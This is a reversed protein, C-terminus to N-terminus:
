LTIARGFGRGVFSSMQYIVINLPDGSTYGADVTQETDTFSVGVSPDTANKTVAELGTTKDLLVVEYIGTTSVIAAAISAFGYTGEAVPVDSIGDRFDANQDGRTRRDWTFTATRAGAGSPNDVKVRVATLPKLDNGEYTLKRPALQALASGTTTARYYVTNGIDSIATLDRRVSGPLSLFVVQAGRAHGAKAAEETGRQGRLLGSLDYTGDLNDVVTTFQIIEAASGYGIAMANAGNLVELETANSLDDGGQVISVTITSDVDWRMIQSHYDFSGDCTAKDPLAALVQNLFGWPSQVTVSHKVDWVIGDTSRELTASKWIDTYTSFGFYVGTKADPTYHDDSLYPV